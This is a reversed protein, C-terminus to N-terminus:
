AFYPILWFRLQPLPTDLMSDVTPYPTRSVSSDQHCSHIFLQPDPETSQLTVEEGWVYIWNALRSARHASSDSSEGGLQSLFFFFSTLVFSGFVSIISGEWKQQQGLSQLRNQQLGGGGLAFVGRPDAPKTPIQSDRQFLFHDWLSCYFNM